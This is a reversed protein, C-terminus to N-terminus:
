EGCLFSGGLARQPALECPKSPTFGGMATEWALAERSRKPRTGQSESAPLNTNVGHTERGKKKLVM